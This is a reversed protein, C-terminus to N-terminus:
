REVQQRGIQFFKSPAFGNGAVDITARESAFAVYPSGRDSHIITRIQTFASGAGDIKIEVGAIKTFEGLPVFEGREVKVDLASLRDRFYEPTWKHVAKWNKAIDTIIM